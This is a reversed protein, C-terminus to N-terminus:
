VSANVPPKAKNILKDSLNMIGGVYFLFLAFLIESLIICYKCQFLLVFYDIM